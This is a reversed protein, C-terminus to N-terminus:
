YNLQASFDPTKGEEIEQIWQSCPSTEITWFKLCKKLFALVADRRDYTLLEKALSMNPGFSNLAPSGTTDGSQLLYQEAEDLNGERVALMGLVFNGNYIFEGYYSQGPANWELMQHAYDAAKDLEGAALAAKAMRPLLSIKKINPRETIGETGDSLKYTLKTPKSDEYASELFDLSQKAAFEKEREPAKITKLKYAQALQRDWAASNGPELKKGLAFCEIAFDLDGLLSYKGANEIIRLNDPDRRLQEKWLNLGEEYSNIIPVLQGEPRGLIEAEPHNQILWLVTQEQKNHIDGDSSRRTFYYILLLSQARLDDPNQTVIEELEAVDESSLNRGAMRLQVEDYASQARQMVASAGFEGTDVQGYLGAVFLFCIAWNAPKMLKLNFGIRM